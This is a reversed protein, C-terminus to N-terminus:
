DEKRAEARVFPDKDKKLKKLVRKAKKSTHRKLSFAVQRRLRPDSHKAAKTLADLAPSIESLALSNACAYRVRAASDKELAEALAKVAKPNNPYGSLSQAAGQRVTHNPDNALSEALLDLAEKSDRIFLAQNLRHRVLPDKEISRADKLKQVSVKNGNKRARVASDLRDLTKASKLNNHINISRPYREHALKNPTESKNFEKSKKNPSGFCIGSNGYVVLSGFLTIFVLKSILGTSCEEGKFSLSIDKRARARAFYLNIKNHHNKEQNM